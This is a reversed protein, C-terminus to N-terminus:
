DDALEEFYQDIDLEPHTEKIRELVTTRIHGRRMWAYPATRVVGAAEAVAAAGGLDRVMRQINLQKM